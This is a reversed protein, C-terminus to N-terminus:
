PLSFFYVVIKQKNKIKVKVEVQKEGRDARKLVKPQLNSSIKEFLTGWLIYHM